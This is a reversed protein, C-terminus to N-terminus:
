DNDATAGFCSKGNEHYYILAVHQDLEKQTPEEESFLAPSTPSNFLCLTGNAYIVTGTSGRLSESSDSFKVDAPLSVNYEQTFKNWEPCGYKSQLSECQPFSGYKQYYSDLSSVAESLQRKEIDSIADQEQRAPESLKTVGLIILGIIIVTIIPSIIGLAIGIKAQTPNGSKRKLAIIGTIIAPLATILFSFLAGAGLAISLFAYDIGEDTKLPKHSTKKKRRPM